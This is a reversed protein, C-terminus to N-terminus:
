GVWEEALNGASGGNEPARPPREAYGVPPSVAAPSGAGVVAPRVRGLLIGVWALGAAFLVALTLSAVRSELRHVALATLGGAGALAYLFGVAQRKSLGLGMLLHALHDKGCYHVADRWSRVDGDRIRLITALTIDFLPVVLVLCPILIAQLPDASYEGFVLITALLYGILVSGNDGLYIRAPPFNYRLFGLSSGVLAVALYSLWPQAEFASSGWAIAFISIGAIASTGGVVGDTNDLSNTASIVGVIWILTLVIDLVGGFASPLLTMEVGFASLAITIAFLVALKVMASIPRHDDLLGLTVVVAAGAILVGFPVLAEVSEFRLTSFLAVTFAAFVGLGGLYPVPTRQLKGGHGGPRDLLGYRHALAILTPVVLDAVFWALILIGLHPHSLLSKM